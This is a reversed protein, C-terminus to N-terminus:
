EHKNPRASACTMRLCTKPDTGRRLGPLGDIALTNEGSREHGAACSRTRRPQYYVHGDQRHDSSDHRPDAPGSGDLESVLVQLARDLLM